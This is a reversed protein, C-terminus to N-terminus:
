NKFDHLLKLIKFKKKLYIKLFIRKNKLRIFIINMNYINMNYIFILFKQFIFIAQIWKNWIKLRINEASIIIYIYQIFIIAVIINFFNFRRCLKFRWLMFFWFRISIFIGLHFFLSFWYIKTVTSRLSLKVQVQKINYSIDGYGIYEDKFLKVLRQYTYVM